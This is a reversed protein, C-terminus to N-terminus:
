KVGERRGSFGFELKGSLQSCSYVRAHQSHGAKGESDGWQQQHSNIVHDWKRGEENEFSLLNGGKLSCDRRM